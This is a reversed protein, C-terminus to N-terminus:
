VIALLEKLNNLIHTPAAKQLQEKTQAGTTVGINFLCSANKGEEIDIVSDGVKVVTSADSIGFHNMAYIIMDPAPRSNPVDSATVL